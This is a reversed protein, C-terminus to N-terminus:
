LVWAAEVDRARISVHGVSWLSEGDDVDLIRLFRLEILHEAGAACDVVRAGHLDLGDLIRAVEEPGGPSLFGEGWVSELLEVFAADYEQEHESGM